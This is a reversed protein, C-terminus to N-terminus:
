DCPGNPGIANQVRFITFFSGRHTPRLVSPVPNDAKGFHFYLVYDFRRDWLFAYRLHSNEDESLADAMNPDLLQRAAFVGLTRGASPDICQFPSNARLPQMGRGTFEHPNFARRDLTAYSALHWYFHQPVETNADLEGMTLVADAPGIANLAGRLEAVQQDFLRMKPIASGLQVVVTLIAVIAAAVQAKRLGEAAAGSRLTLAGIALYIVSVLCRSDIDVAELLGSPLMVAFLGLFLLPWRVRPDITVLKERFSWYAFVAWLMSLGAAVFVSSYLMAAWLARFKAAIAYYVGFGSREALIILVVPVVFSIVSLLGARIGRSIWPRGQEVAFRSGFLFVGALGLAFVHCFFIAAGFLNPIVFALAKHRALVDFRLMAWAFLLFLFTGILFNLYGMSTVLNFTMAPALLVFATSGQNLFRHLLWVVLLIGTLTGAMTLRLFTMSDVLGCFPRNLLDIALNPILTYEVTYMRSLVPDSANCEIFLRAAHNPFDVALPYDGILLGGVTVISLLLYAAAIGARPWHGRMEVAPGPLHRSGAIQETRLM